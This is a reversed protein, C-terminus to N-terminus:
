EYIIEVLEGKELAIEIQKDSYNLLISALLKLAELEKNNINDMKNKAFGYMYFSKNNIKFALITRVSSSKGKGKKAIRKKYVNAGLDADILGNEIEKIANCLSNDDICEKISWKNFWKTKFIRM